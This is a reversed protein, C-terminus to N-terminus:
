GFLLHLLETGKSNLNMDEIIDPLCEKGDTTSMREGFYMKM